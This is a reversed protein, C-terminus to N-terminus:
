VSQQAPDSARELSASERQTFKRIHFTLYRFIQPPVPRTATSTLHAATFLPARLLDPWQAPNKTDTPRIEGSCAPMVAEFGCARAHERSNSGDIDLLDFLVYSSTAILSIFFIVFLHRLCFRRM